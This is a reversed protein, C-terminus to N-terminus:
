LGKEINWFWNLAILLVGTVSLWRHQIFAEETRRYLRYFSDTKRSVDALIWLPLIVLALAFTVGLPNIVLSETLNGELIQLMSRTTGCSPCPIGTVEKFICLEPAM